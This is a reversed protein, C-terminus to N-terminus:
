CHVVPLSSSIPHIGYVKRARELFGEFFFSMVVMVMVVAAVLYTPTDALSRGEEM